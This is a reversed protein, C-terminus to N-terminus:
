RSLRLVDAAADMDLRRFNLRQMVMEDRGWIRM